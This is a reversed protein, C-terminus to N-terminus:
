INSPVVYFSSSTWTILALKALADAVSNAERFVHSILSQVEDLIQCIEGLITAFRWPWRQRKIIFDM